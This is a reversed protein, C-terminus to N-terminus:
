VRCFSIFPRPWAMKTLRRRTPSSGKPTTSASSRQRFGSPAPTRAWIARSWACNRQEMTATM